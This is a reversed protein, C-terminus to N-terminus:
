FKYGVGIGVQSLDVGFDFKTSSDGQKPSVNNVGIFGVTSELFFHNSVFYSIGPKIGVEFETSDKPLKFLIGGQGFLSFKSSPTFYYRVGAGFVFTTSSDGNKPSVNQVGLTAILSLNNTLFYQGSPLLKFVTGEGSIQNGNVDLQNFAGKGSTIGFAGSISIDGKKFGDSSSYYTEEVAKAAVKKKQANAGFSISLLAIMLILKKM